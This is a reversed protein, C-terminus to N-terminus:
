YIHSDDKWKLDRINKIVKAPNGVVVSDPPVDKTVVSGAGVLSNKGISIGPLITSNAGVRANEQIICGSLNEKTKEANPFLANTFVVNPGIWCGKELITHEPVFVNSHIRVNDNIIVHHEINSFSGISVDNGISTHERILVHHGSSFNNGISSSGYIVSHSRVVANNGIVLESLKNNPNEGLLVNSGIEHNEGLRVNSPIEM